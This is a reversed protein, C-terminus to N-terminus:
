DPLRPRGEKNDEMRYLRGQYTGRERMLRRLENLNGWKDTAWDPGILLQRPPDGTLRHIVLQPSIRELTYIVLDLYQQRTLFSLASIAHERALYSGQLLHFLHIKLGWLPLEAVRSATEKMMKETEGPLGYIIHGVTRIGRETLYQNAAVFDHYTYGLNMSNATAQHSTQLGLEVWIFYQRNLEELLDLVAPALCDPRTAIALGVVGPWSLADYYIERLRDVPAYTNSFAQLYVLYASQPWKKQMVQAVQNFQEALPMNRDGAFEGSGQHSCFACGGRGITGDRNPCTFGADLAVKAVKSGLRTRLYDNLTYYLDM